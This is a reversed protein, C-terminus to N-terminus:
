WNDAAVIRHEDRNHWGGSSAEASFIRFSIHASEVAVVEVVGGEIGEKVVM